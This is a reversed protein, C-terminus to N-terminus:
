PKWRNSTRDGDIDQAPAIANDGADIAPSSALLHYDNSASDVFNPNEDLLDHEGGSAGGAYNTENDMLNFDGAASSSDDADLGVEHGVIISNSVQLTSNQGVSAAVAGNDDFTDNILVIENDNWASIARDNKAFIDNTSTLTTRDLQIGGTGSDGQSNGRNGIFRNGQMSLVSENVNLAGGGDGGGSGSVRGINDTFVNGNLDISQKGISLAGGYGGGNAQGVGVSFSRAAANQSLLNRNLTAACPSSSWCSFQIAGGSPYYNVETSASISGSAVAANDASRTACHTDAKAVDIMRMAGGESGAGADNVQQQEAAFNASFRNDSVTAVSSNQIHVGGGSTTGAWNGDGTVVVSRAAQNGAISNSDVSLTAVDRIALGGGYFDIAAGAGSVTASQVATNSVIQNNRITFTENEVDGGGIDVGGGRAEVRQPEERSQGNRLRSM